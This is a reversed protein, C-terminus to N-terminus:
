PSCTRAPWLCARSARRLSLRRRLQHLRRVSGLPGQSHAGVSIARGAAEPGYGSVNAHIVKPNVKSLTQYDVGLKKKTSKRLNTLFVDAREVLRHFIQRGMETNIDICIGKKNRNSFEFLFSWDTKQAADFKVSGLHKQAREPDGNLTEIKIVEAGMDGLIASAGPGAHWIAYEVIRIGELPGKLNQKNTEIGVM